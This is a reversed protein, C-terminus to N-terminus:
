LSLALYRVRQVVLFSGSCAKLVIQCASNEFKLSFHFSYYDFCDQFVIVVFKFLNSSGCYRATLYVIFDYYDLCYYLFIPCVSCHCLLSPGSTSEYKFGFQNEVFAHLCNLLSLSKLLHHQFVPYRSSPYFFRVM